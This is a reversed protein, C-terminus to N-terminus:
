EKKPLERNSRSNNPQPQWTGGESGRPRPPAGLRGKTSKMVPLLELSSLPVPPLAEDLGSARRWRRVMRRWQGYPANEKTPVGETGAQELRELYRRTLGILPYDSTPYRKEDKVEGMHGHEVVYGVGKFGHWSCSDLIWRLTFDEVSLSGKPDEEAIQRAIVWALALDVGGTSSLYSTRSHLTLVPRDYRRSSRQYTMALMCNGWTHKLTGDATMATKCMMQAIAGKKGYGDNIMHCRDLFHTCEAPDLYDRQLRGFRYKTFWLSALDLKFKMSEAVLVANFVTASNPGWHDLDNRHSYLLRECASHFLKTLTPKQIVM